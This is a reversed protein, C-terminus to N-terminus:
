AVGMRRLILDCMERVAGAGGKSQLILRAATAATPHADAVVAGCGVLALCGIDNVDNGLYVTEAPEHGREALWRSLTRVKDKQGQLCEVGMKRARSAVVPNEEYSLIVTAIGAERLQKLGWSDARSCRISEHGDQSVIVTNDTLVGDFDLVLAVVRLPLEALPNRAKRQRLLIEARELDHPEDVELVREGPIEYLATRGFFRHRVERFGATRMVVVAGAELFQPERDQRMPRVMKDHNVGVGDGERRQWLFYHFPIVAVASDAKEAVLSEITGDIDRALTLPSTCQLFVLIHPEYGETARLTDLAHLLAQESTSKDGSIEGPRWIVEAEYRRAVAGIETDDTSVVVRTVSRSARAERVVYALLPEGAVTRINKRPIAKSGGRAPIVALIENASHKMM